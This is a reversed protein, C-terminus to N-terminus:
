FSDSVNGQLLHHAVLLIELGLVHLAVDMVRLSLAPVLEQENQKFDDLEEVVGNVEVEEWEKYNKKVVDALRTCRSRIGLKVSSTVNFM